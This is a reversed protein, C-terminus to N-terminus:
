AATLADPTLLEVRGNAFQVELEGVHSRAAVVGVTGRPVRPRIIGIGRAAAVRDGVAFSVRDQTNNVSMPQGCRPSAYGSTGIRDSAFDPATGHNAHPAPQPTRRRGSPHCQMQDRERRDDRHHQEAAPLQVDRIGLVEVQLVEAVRQLPPREADEDQHHPYPDDAVTSEDGLVRPGRRGDVLQSHLARSLVGGTFRLGDLVTPVHHRGARVCCAPRDSM